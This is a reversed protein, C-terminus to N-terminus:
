SPAPEAERTKFYLKWFLDWFGDELPHLRPYGPVVAGCFPWERAAGVLKARFPNELVCFCTAAFANRQREEERLVHDHAQHQWACDPGLAPKLGTRLFTMATLQDSECRMGMWVLHLHDPMLCYVPCWVAYRAASHASNRPVDRSVRGHAM